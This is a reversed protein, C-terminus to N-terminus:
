LKSIVKEGYKEMGRIKNELPEPAPGFLYPIRFGVMIDTVGRDELRRIGDPKYADLSMAHIEFPGDRGEEERLQKLRNIFRDLAEPDGLDGGGHMWGDNRAARRLAVDAHGGILIPIPETPAPSMKTKPIDYFEGHFEFYEGTTLGKIIAICEDMRKGRKAFPVGMLEYDEPWPSTGVGLGLRNDFLAALSGAQKAVLAPPRIPLKLVFFNFKLTTTVACLAGAMVFPEVFAKGDLFERSGDATYPYKSDSEFPYAISDPITMADYGAAEAAKALPIYYTPDTM